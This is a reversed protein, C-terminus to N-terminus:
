LTLGRPFSRMGEEFVERDAGEEFHQVCAFQASRSRAALAVNLRTAGSSPAAANVVLVRRAFGRLLAGGGIVLYHAPLDMPKSSARRRLAQCNENGNRPIRSLSDSQEPTV